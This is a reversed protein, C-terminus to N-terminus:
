EAEFTNRHTEVLTVRVLKIEAPLAESLIEYFEHSLAEGSTNTFANNLNTKHFPDVISENVIRDLEDRDVILGSDADIAGSGTRTVSVDIKYDHGHLRYCPGFIERNQEPTLDANGLSHMASIKYRKTLVTAIM